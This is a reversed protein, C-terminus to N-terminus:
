NLCASFTGTTAGYAVLAAGLGVALAVVM